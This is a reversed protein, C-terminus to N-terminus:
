VAISDTDGHSFEKVRAVYYGIYRAWPRLYFLNWITAASVGADANYEGRDRLNGVLLTCDTPRGSAHLRKMARFITRNSEDFFDDASLVDAEAFRDPDILVSSLVAREAEIDRPPGRDLLERPEKRQRSVRTHQNMTKSNATLPRKATNGSAAKKNLLQRNSKRNPIPRM